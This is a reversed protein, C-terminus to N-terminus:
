VLRYIMNRPWVRFSFLNVDSKLVHAVRNISFTRQDNDGVMSILLKSFDAITVKHSNAVTIFVDICPEYDSMNEKPPTMHCTVGSDAIWVEKGRDDLILRDDQVSDATSANEGTETEISVSGFDVSDKLSGRTCM